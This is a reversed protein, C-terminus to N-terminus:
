LMPLSMKSSNILVEARKRYLSRLPLPKSLLNYNPKNKRYYLNMVEGQINSIVRPNQSQVNKSDKSLGLKVTTPSNPSILMPTTLEPPPITSHSSHGLIMANKHYKESTRALFKIQSNTTERRIIKYLSTIDNYKEWNLKEEIEVSSIGCKEKMDQIVKEDFKETIIKFGYNKTMQSAFYYKTFWPHQMIEPLTIREEVNKALMRKLLDILEDSVERGQYSPETLVIKNVLSQINNDEFPMRGFTMIYLVVGASWIDVSTKYSSGLLMEPPAYAPSGCATQLFQLDTKMINGLGFDVLKINDYRDIMINELKIDRHVIHLENHLYDLASILQCFVHRSLWEPLYHNKKVHTLLSSNDAKEMVLYYNNEDELCQFFSIIFPHDMKKNIELERKFKDISLKTKPIAKIAVHYGLNEIVADYVISFGGYGLVHHFKYIGLKKPILPKNEM